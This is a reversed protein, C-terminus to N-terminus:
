GIMADEAIKLETSNFDFSGAVYEYVDVVRIIFDHVAVEGKNTEGKVRISYQSVSEYDLLATSILEGGGVIAFPLQNSGGEIEYTVSVNSDGSTQYFSGVLSDLPADESIMLVTANFDFPAEYVDTVEIIFDHVAVEGKNTEGKVRISYQSVSEYDLLATSILEGGGVIAFPLQNSGGEIEYTVSVNSDGSTQYFSGVLSDLPADESIMLVTANFDFPAEYVDTLEIIFDHVAVEGKNTEGKVRISYQSVSEYDLLATSILEGVGVIAFPLQNSGGEIEYTVSVNSDGSTQYFSGVLSDLPADETIMLVTANFDFPAEYVDTVEIIFDHVEVEGKNTEGKVRISYQSVSEYDLLATTILEGVGVIAFPLQNSGVEGEYTVSVNSDGSTQYFSGVLSDLPADESIMLVTANFDFPAEYVDTVEIIFDHVEM